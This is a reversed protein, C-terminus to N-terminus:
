LRAEGIITMIRRRRITWFAVYSAFIIYAAVGIMLEPAVLRFYIAQDEPSLSRAFLLLAVGAGLVAKILNEIALMWFLEGSAVGCIHMIALDKQWCLADSLFAAGVGTMAVVVAFCLMVGIAKWLDTNEEKQKEALEEVTNIYCKIGCKGAIEKLEKKLMATEEGQTTRVYISNFVNGYFMPSAEFYAEDMVSVIYDDLCVMAEKAHFLLEASWDSGKEFYGIIRTKTGLNENELITGVPFEALREKCVYGYLMNEVDGPKIKQRFTVRCLDFVSEDLYLTDERKKTGDQIYNVPLYMYTGARTGYTEGLMRIFQEAKDYYESGEQESMLINLNVFDTDSFVHETEYIYYSSKASM